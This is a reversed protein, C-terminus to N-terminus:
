KKRMKMIQSWCKIREFEKKPFTKQGRNNDMNEIIEDMSEEKGNLGESQKLGDKKM